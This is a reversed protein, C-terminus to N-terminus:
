LRLYNLATKKAPNDIETIQASLTIPFQRSRMYLIRHFNRFVGSPCVDDSVEVDYDLFLITADNPSPTSIIYDSLPPPPPTRKEEEKEEDEAM